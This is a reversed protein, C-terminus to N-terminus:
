HPVILNAKTKPVTMSVPKKRQLRLELREPLWKYNLLKEQKEPDKQIFFGSTPTYRILVTPKVNLPDHM